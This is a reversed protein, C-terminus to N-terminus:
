RIPRWLPGRKHRALLRGAELTSLSRGFLHGQAKDCGAKLVLDFQDLTEVGEAVIALGFNRALTVMASILPLATSAPGTQLFSQDIKLTNVPLHQIYSLSSYGTGFDDVSLRVGLKRLETMTQVSRAVDQMVASETVELELFRPDMGASELTRAVVASFDQSAFRAASVNVAIVLPPYGKKQWLANQRCARELVWSDIPVIIGTAEAIPIFRRAPVPGRKPHAWSLLAEMGDVAGHMNLLPEFVLQFQNRDLAQSLSSEMELLQFAKSGDEPTFLGLGGRGNRKAKELAGEANRALEAATRGCEPFVAVGASATLLLDAGVYQVPTRAQDIFDRARKEAENADAAPLVVLFRDTGIRGAVEGPRLNQHLREAALRLLSDGGAGGLAENFLRFHDVELTVVALKSAHSRAARIRNELFELAADNSLLAGNSAQKERLPHAGNRTVASRGFGMLGVPQGHAFLLHTSVDLAVNRGDRARFSLAYNVPIGGGVQELLIQRATEADEPAVLEAIDRGVLEEPSYGLLREAADNVATIRGRLDHTFVLDGRNDFLERYRQDHSRAEPSDAAPPVASVWGAVIDGTLEALRQLFELRKEDWKRPRVDLVCIAGLEEGDPARVPLVACARVGGTRQVLPNDRYRPDRRLDAIVGAGDAFSHICTLVEQQSWLLAIAMGPRMQRFREPTLRIVAVPASFLRAAVGAVRDLTLSPQRASAFETRDFGRGAIGESFFWSFPGIASPPAPPRRM